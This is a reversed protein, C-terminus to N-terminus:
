FYLGRNQSRVRLSYLLSLRCLRSQCTQCRLKVPLGCDHTRSVGWVRATDEEEGDVEGCVVRELWWLDVECGADVVWVDVAVATNAKVDESVLPTRGQRYRFTRVISCEWM